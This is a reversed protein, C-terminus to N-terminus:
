QDEVVVDISHMEEGGGRGEGKVERGEGLGLVIGLGLQPLGLEVELLGLLGDLLLLVALSLQLLLQDRGLGLRGHPLSLKLSLGM